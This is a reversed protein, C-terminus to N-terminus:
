NFLNKKIRNIDILKGLKISQKRNKLNFNLNSPAFTMEGLYIDGNLNYLDVRVFGFDESLKKAYEIMLKLNKPKEFIIDPRRFFGPLGTEIDNLKWNLDYYNNVKGKIGDIHKQVRIFKPNGHFCYVKYDEINDKLYVEAFIKREVNLYQFESM